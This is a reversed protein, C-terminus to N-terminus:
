TLMERLAVLISLTVSFDKIYYICSMVSVIYWRSVMYSGFAGSRGVLDIKWSGQIEENLSPFAVRWVCLFPFPYLLPFNLCSCQM